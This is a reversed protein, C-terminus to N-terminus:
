RHWAARASVSGPGLRIAEYGFRDRVADMASSVEPRGPARLPLALQCEPGVLNSMGVGLLRVPLRRTYGEEFLERVAAYVDASSSVPTSTRSRTITHFDAYRLRLHITRARVDRERARWSVREALAQLQRLMTTRDGVDAHFTRENSISGDTAGRPDHELFAPRDRVPARTEGSVDRELRAILRSFRQRVPGPPLDLIEGLTFLDYRALQEEAKPGIGPYKRVPLPHLFGRGQGHRVMWVGAPKARGSAIKALCRTTAIGVSSPLGLEDHIAQRMSRVHREITADGDADGPRRLLRECGRLDLFFEDISATTVEPSFRQAIAKVQKAYSGYTNHRTPLFSTDPPALRSAETMNMGSRVGFARVEYSCSTVVGRQGERGGVIVPRGELAPNLLREVSVFFTDLDLCCTRPAPAGAMPEM